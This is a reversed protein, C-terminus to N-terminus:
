LVLDPNELKRVLLDHSYIGSQLDNELQNIEYRYQELELETITGLELKKEYIELQSKKMNLKSLNDAYSQETQKLTNYLSTLTTEINDKADGYDRTAQNYTAQKKDRTDSSYSDSINSAYKEYDYKAIDLANKKQMISYSGSQAKAVISTISLTHAVPTYECDYSLNYRTKSNAGLLVNLNSYADDINNSLTDTQSILTNYNNLAEDYEAQSMKGLSLKVENIKMNKQQIDMNQNYLELANEAEIIAVFYERVSQELKEKTVQSNADYNDLAIALSKYQVALTSYDQSAGEEYSYYKISTSTNNFQTEDLEKNEDISKLASSNAIAKKVADEITLDNVAAEATDGSVAAGSVIKTGPALMKTGAFANSSILMSGALVMCFLKRKM